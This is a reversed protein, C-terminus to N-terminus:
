DSPANQEIASISNIAKSKAEILANLWREGFEGQLILELWNFSPYSM